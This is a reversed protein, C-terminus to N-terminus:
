REIATLMYGVDALMRIATYASTFGTEAGIAKVKADAIHPAAADLLRRM